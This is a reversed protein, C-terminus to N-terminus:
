HYSMGQKALQWVAEVATTEGFDRHQGTSLAAIAVTNAYPTVAEAVQAADAFVAVM